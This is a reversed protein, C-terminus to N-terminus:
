EDNGVLGAGQPHGPGLSGLSGIGLCPQFSSGPFDVGTGPGSAPFARSCTVQPHDCSPCSLWPILYLQPNPLVPGTEGVQDGAPVPHGQHSHSLHSYAQRFILLAKPVM